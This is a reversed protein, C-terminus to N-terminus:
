INKPKIVKLSIFPIDSKESIKGERAPYREKRWCGPCLLREPTIMFFERDVGCEGCRGAQREVMEWCDSETLGFKRWM